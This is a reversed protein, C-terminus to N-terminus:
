SKSQRAACTLAPAKGQTRSLDNKALERKKGGFVVFEIQMHNVRLKSAVVRTDERTVQAFTFCPFFCGNGDWDLLM